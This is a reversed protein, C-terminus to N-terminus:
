PTGTITGRAVEKLLTCLANIAVINADFAAQDEPPVIPRIYASYKTLADCAKITFRTATSLGVVKQVTYAM